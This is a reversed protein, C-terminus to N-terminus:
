SVTQSNEFPNNGKKKAIAGGILSFIVGFIVYHFILGMIMFVKFYKKTMEMGKDIQDDSMGRKVMAERAMDMGKVLIDPFIAISIFGWIIMILTILATMKFGSGFVNGFTVYENNAKSFAVANLIVGILFPLLAVYQSWNNFSMNGLYLGVGILIMVIATVVSYPIHTQKM